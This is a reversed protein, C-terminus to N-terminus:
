PACVTGLYYGGCCWCWWSGNICPLFFWAKMNDAGFESGVV